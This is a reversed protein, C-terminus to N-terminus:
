PNTLYFDYMFFRTVSDEVQKRYDLFLDLHACNEIIFQRSNPYKKALIATKSPPTAIDLDGVVFMVPLSYYKCLNTTDKVMTRDSLWFNYFRNAITAFEAFATSDDCMHSLYGQKKLIMDPISLNGPFQKKFGQLMSFLNRSIQEKNGSFVSDLQNFGQHSYLKSFCMLNLNERLVYNGPSIEDIMTFISSFRQESKQSNSTTLCYNKVANVIDEGSIEFNGPERAGLLVMKGVKGSYQCNYMQAVMTGYSFAMLNITDAPLNLCVERIDNVVESMSYASIDISENLKSNVNKLVQNQFATIGLTHLTNALSDSEHILSSLNISGDVGRYGVLVLDFYQLLESFILENRLNTEGPGGNLIFIPNHRKEPYLCKIHIVPITILPSNRISRNEYAVLTGYRAPYGLYIGENWAVLGPKGGPVVKGTLYHYVQAQASYLFLVFVLLLKSKM